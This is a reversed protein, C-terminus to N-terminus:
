RPHVRRGSAPPEPWLLLNEPDAARGPGDSRSTQRYVASTVIVRHPAKVSWGRTLETALWDLLEPHTPEDGMTGFDSPTAVLGRRLSAALASQGARPGHASSRAPAALRGIGDGAPRTPSAKPDPCSTKTGSCHARRFHLPSRM